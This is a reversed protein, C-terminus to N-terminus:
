STGLGARIYESTGSSRVPHHAGDVSPGHGITYDDDARRPWSIRLNQDGAAIRLPFSPHSRTDQFWTRRRAYRQAAFDDAPDVVVGVLVPEFGTSHVEPVVDESRSASSAVRGARDQQQKVSERDLASI